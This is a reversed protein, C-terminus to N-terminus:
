LKRILDSFGSETIVTIGLKQAKDLKGGPKEGVILYNLNKSVGGAVKGGLSIIQDEVDKRPRSLAGTILFSKGSVASDAPIEPTHAIFNLGANRLDTLLNLFDKDKFADLLFKATKDGVDPINTLTEMDALMLNDMSGFHSALTKAMRAGVQPLGSAFLVRDFPQERSKKIAAIINGSSKKGMRERTELEEKTLTYIDGPTKLRGEEVLANILTEGFGEIDMANRSVFHLLSAKVRAHCRRNPCRRRVEGEPKILPTECESCKEPFVIPIADAPRKETVTKVVKPIVEGGKEIFVTDGIMVGLRTIEEENHLTARSVTSGSLLVPKLEAVPTVAGTRGVQFSVGKLITTIQQAPYKYAIAWRPFKVTSGAEARVTYENAKIVAGDIDYPLTFRLNEITDLATYVSNLDDCLMNLDNVPLGLRKCLDMDDTHTINGAGSDVSYIRIDLAREATILPDLLKLSGSAANRPNAFLPLGDEGRERNLRQFEAKPMFVEGRVILVDKYDISEPLSRITRVNATIDEGYTGDGRTAALALIGNGYTVSVAAGDMKPEVTFTVQGNSESMMKTVFKEADIRNYSNELSLMPIAHRVGAVAGAAGVKKLPSGTQIYEPYREELEKLERYLADYETDSIEPNNDTYYKRNHYFIIETLQKIREEPTMM